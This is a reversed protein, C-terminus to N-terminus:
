EEEEEMRKGHASFPLPMDTKKAADLFEVLNELPTKEHYHCSSCSNPKKDVGGARLSEEPSVFKFAHSNEEEITPPMHCATCSGFTHLKHASRKQILKHCATCLTDGPRLTQSKNPSKHAGEQHVGHCSTCMIGKGSHVSGQWENYQQHHKREADPRETFYRKLPKGPSYGVPYAYREPFDERAPSIKQVSLGWNHCQGCVMARLRWPLKAPNVITDKEKDFFVKAAKVHNNGPGHCAECGIGLDAWQTDFADREADYNVTLGTVHCGACRFQWVMGPDSWFKGSGPYYTELGWKDSWTNEDADWEAPLIHIGGNPFETLYNQKKNIGIVSIVEYDHFENDPGITNIYYKGDRTFMTTKINTGGYKTAKTTVKVSLTNNEDFDGLVTYTSALQTFKSHLTHKWSDHERWHCEKCKDSGIYKAPELVATIDGQEKAHEGEKESACGFTALIVFACFFVVIHNRGIIKRV